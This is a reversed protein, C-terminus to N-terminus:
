QVIIKQTFKANESTIEVIYFGANQIPNIAITNISQSLSINKNVINKGQVDFIKLSANELSINSKISVIGSAVQNSIVTFTSKDFEPTSLANFALGEWTTAVSLLGARGSPIGVTNQRFMLRDINGTTDAGTSSIASPSVPIGSAFVPDVYVSVVDNNNGSVISYKIIILHDQNYDLSNPTYVPSGGKTVGIAFASGTNKATVRFTPSFNSGSMVRFFENNSATTISLNIVMGVYLDGSSVPTFGKGCSDLDAKLEITKNATGYNAYSIVNTQVKTNSCTLGACAGGGGINSTSNTWTGQGSLSQTTVYNSFDDQLVVQAQTFGFALLCVSLLKRKM